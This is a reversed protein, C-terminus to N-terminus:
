TSVTVNEAREAQQRLDSARLVEEVLLKITVGIQFAVQRDNWVRCRGSPHPLHWVHILLSLRSDEYTYVRYHPDDDRKEIPQGYKLTMQAMVAAQVRRGMALITLSRARNKVANAILANLTVYASRAAEEEDWVSTPSPYLNRRHFARLYDGLTIEAHKCIAEAFKGTCHHAKSAVADRGPAEGIIACEVRLKADEKARLVEEFVKDTTTSM